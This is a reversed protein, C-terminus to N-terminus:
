LPSVLAARSAARSATTLWSEVIIACRAWSMAKPVSIVLSGVLKARNKLDSGSGSLTSVFGSHSGTTTPQTATITALAVHVGIVGIMPLM